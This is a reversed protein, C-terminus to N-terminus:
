SSDAAMAIRQSSQGLHRRVKGIGKSGGAVIVTKHKAGDKLGETPSIFPYVDHRTREIRSTAM